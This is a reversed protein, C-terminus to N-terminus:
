AKRQAKQSLPERVVTCQKQIREWNWMTSTTSGSLPYGLQHALMCIQGRHHAEHTIMYAVMMVGAPWPRAWGDRIFQPGREPPSNLAEEIMERCRADSKKLSTRAQQQTCARDLTPPLKLHPASLRIWKCRINHVHALIAAITRTRSGSLKANWAAPDLQDLVIQNMKANVAFALLADRVYKTEASIKAQTM